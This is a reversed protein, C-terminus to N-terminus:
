VTCIVNRSYPRRGLPDAAGITYCPRRESLAPESRNFSVPKDASPPVQRVARLHMRTLLQRYRPESLLTQRIVPDLWVTPAGASHLDVGREFWDLARERRGLALAAAAVAEPFFYRQKFGAEMQQFRREAEGRQHLGVLCMVLVDSPRGVRDATARESPVIDGCRGARFAVYAASTGGYRYGPVAEQLRRQEAAASDLQNNYALMLALVNGYYGVFPELITAKRLEVIANSLDDQAQLYFSYGNHTWADSPNLDIARLFERKATEWDWRLVAAAYGVNAHAEANTEDLALARRALSDSKPYADLPPVFADALQNWATAAAAYPAAFLSDRAMAEGFYELSRRLDSETGRALHFRGRFYADYSAANPVHRRDANQEVALKVELADVIQRAVDRELAGLDRVDRESTASWAVTGETGRVVDVSIRVKGGQVRPRVEILYRVGLKRAADRLDTSDVSFERASVRGLLRIQPVRSLAEFIEDTVGDAFYRQTTDAPADLRPILAVTPSEQLTARPRKVIGYMAAVVALAGAILTGIWVSRRMSRGPSSAPSEVRPEDVRAPPPADSAADARTSGLTGGAIVATSKWDGRRLREALAIVAADPEAGVDRELVAKYDRFQLLAAPVEGLSALSEMLGVTARASTPEHSVLRWWWRKAAAVDVRRTADGALHLLADRQKDHLLSRRSEVWREFEPAESLFFGDLFAGGYLSAAREADGCALAQEFEEVDSAIVDGNLRVELTGGILDEAGLDRRLGSLLQSLSNRSHESDREPWLLATLKDRSLGRPGSAALVALLALPRRGIRRADGLDATELSLGGFTRLRLRAM